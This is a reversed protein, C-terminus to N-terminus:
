SRPRRPARSSAASRRGTRAPGSRAASAASAANLPTERVCEDPRKDDRLGKFSPHRLRGDRTWESFAVEAVLRPSVWRAQRLRPPAPVPAADARDRDLSRALERRVADTFGTGVRGAYRLGAGDHVAVLLAGVGAAGTSLPVYGVVAVEQSRVLKIKIWQRARAGRYASRDEKAVLGELGRRRAARLATLLDTGLREAPALPAGTAALLPELLDRREHLPRERLDEGDLWLLDFLVYCPDGASAQLAAFSARGRDDFAVIEGDLVAERVALGALARAIDPFRRSLDLGSRSQLCVRHDRVGALARFGDYKVEFVYPPRVLATPTALAALMPPWVRRLLATPDARAARAEAPDRGRTVRRAGVAPQPREALLDRTPAADRDPAKFLLWSEKAGVRSMRVLHWRGRLRAGDFVVVLHGRDRMVGAQGPPATDWTGRDWVLTDGAGYAGEPIRGEFNLYELPHDATRVALRRDSPNSSPGKPVAWSALVGEIELRLDYHRRRAHHEHVVFRPPPM